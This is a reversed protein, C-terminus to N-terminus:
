TNPELCSVSNLTSEEAKRKRQLLRFKRTLDRALLDLGMWNLWNLEVNVKEHPFLLLLLLLM